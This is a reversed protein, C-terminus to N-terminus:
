QSFVLYVPIIKEVVIVGVRMALCGL